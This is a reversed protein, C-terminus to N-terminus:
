ECRGKQAIAYQFDPFGVQMNSITRIFTGTNKMLNITDTNWSPPDVQVTLIENNEFDKKLSQWKSGGVLMEPSDSNLGQLTFTSFDENPTLNIPNFGKIGAKNTSYVITCTLNDKYQYNSASKVTRSSFVAIPYYNIACLIAISVLVIGFISLIIVSWRIKTDINKPEQPMGM